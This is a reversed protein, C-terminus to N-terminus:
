WAAADLQDQFEDKGEIVLFVNNPLCAIWIGHRKIHGAAICVKNECPSSEVWAEGHQIRVVTMGMPGSVTVTEEADLPFIWQGDQGKIHVQSVNRPRLYIRFAFFGTLALALLIIVVDWFKLPLKEKM